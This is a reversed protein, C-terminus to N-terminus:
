FVNININWINIYRSSILLSSSKSYGKLAILQKDNINYNIFRNGRYIISNNEVQNYFSIIADIRNFSLEPFSEKNIKRIDLSVRPKESMKLDYEIFNNM